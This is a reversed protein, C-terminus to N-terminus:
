EVAAEDISLAAGGRTIISARVGFPLTWFPATGHGSPFGSLIPGDFGALDDFFRGAVGCGTLGGEDCDMMTGLVIGTVHEFVGALRLQTLMRRLKYPREAIDELFLISPRDLRIGYPTGLGAAIQTLTGGALMGDAEGERLVSLGDPQLRGMPAPEFLAKMFSARDYGEDRRAFRRELMPGHFAVLGAHCVSYVLLSTIDSFGCLIKRAGALETADIFPLIEASGYGGRAAILAKISPDRLADLFSQARLEPPGAVIPERAFVRDDWVPELGLRRLEEVGADFEARVFPSAPSVIAVKDGPVLARPRIM